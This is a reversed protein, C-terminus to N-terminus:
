NNTQKFVIKFAVSVLVGAGFSFGVAWAIVKTKWEKIKRIETKLWRVTGLLGEDRPDFKDGVMIRYIADVKEETTHPEHHKDM